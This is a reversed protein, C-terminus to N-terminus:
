INYNKPLEVGENGKKNEPHVVLTPIGYKSCDEICEIIESCYKQGNINDKWLENANLYPAHANEVYLGADRAYDPFSKYDKDFYDAWLLLVGSFGAEKIFRMREQPSLNYGFWDVISSKM